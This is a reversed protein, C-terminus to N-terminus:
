PMNCLMRPSGQVAKLWKLPVELKGSGNREKPIPFLVSECLHHRWVCNWLMRKMGQRERTTRHTFKRLPFFVVFRLFPLHPLVDDEGGVRLRVRDGLNLRRNLLSCQVKEHSSMKRRASVCEVPTGTPLISRAAMAVLRDRIPEPPSHM